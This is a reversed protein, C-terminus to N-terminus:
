SSFLIVPVTTPSKSAASTMMPPAIQYTPLMGLLVALLSGAEVPPWLVRGVVVGVGTVGAGETVGGAGGACGTFGSLLFVGSASFDGVIGPGYNRGRARM